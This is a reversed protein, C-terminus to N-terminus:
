VLLGAGTFQVTPSRPLLAPLLLYELPALFLPLGLGPVILWFSRDGKEEAKFDGGSRPFWYPNHLIWYRVIVGLAFGLGLVLLFWGLLNARRTLWGLWALVLALLPAAVSLFFVTVRNM